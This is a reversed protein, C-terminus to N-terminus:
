LLLKLQELTDAADKFHIGKMGVKECGAINVPFDDVFVADNPRVGFQELTIQFIKADPKMAGVEFSLVVADFESKLRETPYNGGVETSTVFEVGEEALLKVRREVVAKRRSSLALAM